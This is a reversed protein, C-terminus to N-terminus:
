RIVFEDEATATHLWRRISVSLHYEGALLGTVDFSALGDNNFSWKDSASIATRGNFLVQFSPRSQTSKDIVSVELYCDGVVVGDLISVVMQAGGDVTGDSVDVGVVFPSNEPVVEYRECGSLSLTLICLFAPIIFLKSRM